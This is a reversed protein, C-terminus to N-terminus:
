SLVRIFKSYREKCDDSQKIAVDRMISNEYTKLFSEEPVVTLIKSNNDYSLSLELLPATNSYNMMQEFFNQAIEFKCQTNISDGGEEKLRIYRAATEFRIYNQVLLPHFEDLVVSDDTM